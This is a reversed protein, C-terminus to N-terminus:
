EDNDPSKEYEKRLWNGRCSPEYQDSHPRKDPEEAPEPLRDAAFSDFTGPDLWGILAHLRTELSAFWPRSASHLIVSVM